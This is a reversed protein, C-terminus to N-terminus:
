ETKLLKRAQNDNFYPQYEEINKGYHFVADIVLNNFTENMQYDNKLVSEFIEDYPLKSAMKTLVAIIAKILAQQGADMNASVFSFWEPWLEEKIYKTGENMLFYKYPVNPTAEETMTKAFYEDLTMDDPQMMLYNNYRTLCAAPYNGTEMLEILSTFNPNDAHRKKIEALTLRKGFYIWPESQMGDYLRFGILRDLNYNIKSDNSILDTTRNIGGNNYFLYDIFKQM